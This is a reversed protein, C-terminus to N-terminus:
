LKQRPSLSYYYFASYNVRKSDGDTSSIMTVLLLLLLMLLLLSLLLLLMKVTVSFCTLFPFFPSTSISLNGAEREKEDIILSFLRCSRRDNDYPEFFSHHHVITFAYSDSQFIGRTKERQISSSINIKVFYVCVCCCCCFLQMCYFRFSYYIFMASIFERKIVNLYKYMTRNEYLIIM